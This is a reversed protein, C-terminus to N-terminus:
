GGRLGYWLATVLVTIAAVMGISIWNSAQAGARSINRFPYPLWVTLIQVIVREILQGFRVILSGLRVIKASLKEAYHRFREDINHLSSSFAETIRESFLWAIVVGIAVSLMTLLMPVLRMSEMTVRGFLWLEMRNSNVLWLLGLVILLLSPWAVITIIGRRTLKFQKKWYTTFYITSALASCMVVLLTVVYWGNSEAGITAVLSQQMWYGGLPPVGILTLVAILFAGFVVTSSAQLISGYIVIISLMIVTLQILVYAYAEHGYAYIIMGILIMGIYVLAQQANFLMRLTCWIVAIAGVVKCLLMVDNVGTILVQFRLLIYVPLLANGFCYIVVRLIPREMEVHKMWYTYPFMGSLLLASVVFAGAIIVKMRYTFDLAPGSFITEIMTFQLSHNPMYWYLGTLAIFFVVYGFLQATIYRFAAKPKSGYVPHSLLLFISCNMLIACALFTLMHDALVLGSAAFLLLGIYGYISALEQKAEKHYLLCLLLLNVGTILILLWASLNNLEYGIRYITDGVILWDFDFSYDEAQIRTREWIVGIAIVCAAASLILSSAVMASQNSRGITLGLLFICGYLIPIIWVLDSYAPM